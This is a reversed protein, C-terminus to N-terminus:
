RPPTISDVLLLMFGVGAPTIIFTLITLLTQPDFGALLTGGGIFSMVSLMIVLTLPFAILFSVYGEDVQGLNELFGKMGRVRAKKFKDAEDRLYSSLEGGMHSTTVIGDFMRGLKPSPSRLAANKLAQNLDMGLLEIDGIARRVEPGIGFEDGVNALSRLIREPPMGASALVSMFNAILPLNVDIKRSKSSIRLLPYLYCTGFSIVAASLGFLVSFLVAQLVSSTVLLALIFSFMFVVTGSVIFTFAMLGIYTTFDIRIGAKALNLQLVALKSLLLKPVLRSFKSFFAIYQKNFNM